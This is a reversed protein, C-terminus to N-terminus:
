PKIYIATDTIGDSTWIKDWNATIDYFEGWYSTACQTSSKLSDPAKSTNPIYRNINDIILFGSPKLLGLARLSCQDRLKGDVLIFDLTEEGLDFANVYSIGSDKRHDVLQLSVNSINQNLLDRSVISHWEMNHEVSHLFRVRKSFWLTSRGSGWELGTFDLSLQEDLFSIADKTLWPSTRNLFEFILRRFKSYAYPITWHSKFNKIVNGL